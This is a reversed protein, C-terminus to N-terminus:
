ADAPGDRLLALSAAQDLVPQRMEDTLFELMAESLGTNESAIADGAIAVHYDHAFASTATAAVCSHTSVGGLLLHTVGLETLVEDLRTGHLADDRTKTIDVADTTDLEDVYAAQATGPFAFGEDDAHMNITWTSRDREHETRVLVVPRGAERAAPVLENARAVLEDKVAALEPAEFYANQLDILLLALASRPATATVGDM